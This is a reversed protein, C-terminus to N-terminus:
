WPRILLIIGLVTLVSGGVVAPKITEKLVFAALPLVWLPETSGLTNAVTVDVKQIALLSLWFGGFTVVAVALLFIDKVIKQM